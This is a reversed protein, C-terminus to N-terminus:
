HDVREDGPVEQDHAQQSAFFTRLALVDVKKRDRRSEVAQEQATKSVADSRLCNERRAKARLSERYTLQAFAMCLFQDLCSFSQVKYNGRCRAVGRRFDRTPFFDMVAFFHDTGYEDAVGVLNPDGFPLLLKLDIRESEEHIHKVELPNEAKRSEVVPCYHCFIIM